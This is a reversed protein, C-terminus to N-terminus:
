VTYLGQYLRSLRAAPGEGVVYTDAVGAGLREDATSFNPHIAIAMGPVLATEDAATIVPPDHDVGVGHGHWIGVRVGAAAAAADIARAPDAASRGAVLEREAARAAGLCSDALRSREEGIEGVAVLRGLEVWYGTPGVVEVFVTVLDGAEVQEATPRELFYAGTSIFVLSDRTGRARVAREVEASLEWGTRGPELHALLAEFGDDAIAATAELQERDRADKVAKVGSVAGTVDVLDADPLVAALREAEWTSVVHRLGAVGIRGTAAGREALAAAVGAALDDYESLIDGQGAVRVDELGTRRRAYWADAGTPVVLAPETAPTAVAYAGRVVPVYGACWELLGYQGIVGKGAVVVATLGEDELAAWVRELRERLRADM